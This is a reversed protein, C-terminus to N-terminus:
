GLLWSFLALLVPDPQQCLLVGPNSEYLVNVKCRHKPLPLEGISGV